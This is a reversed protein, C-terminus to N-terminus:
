VGGLWRVLAMTIVSAVAVRPLACVLARGRWRWCERRSWRAAEDMGESAQLRADAEYVLARDRARRFERWM